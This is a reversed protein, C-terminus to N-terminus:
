GEIGVEFLNVSVEQLQGGSDGAREQEDCWCSHRSAAQMRAMRINQCMRVIVYGTDGLYGRSRALNRHEIIDAADEARGDEERSKSM